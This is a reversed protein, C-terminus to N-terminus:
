CGGPVITDHSKVTDHKVDPLAKVKAQIGEVTLARNREGEAVAGRHDFHVRLVVEWAEGVLDRTLNLGLLHGLSRGTRGLLRPSRGLWWGGRRTVM